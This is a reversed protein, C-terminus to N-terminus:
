GGDFSLMGGSSRVAQEVADILGRQGPLIRDRAEDLTFWEARDVEPFERLSGSGRPWEMQFMNSCLAAPDFDGEVLFAHVIKGSPQQVPPLPTFDGDITFGTEEQFERRAAVLADEEPLFEGKPISWAGQDKNRWFPGGPHVLFVEVADGCRRYVLIGASHKPM